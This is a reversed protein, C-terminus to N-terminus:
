LFGTAQMPVLLGACSLVHLVFLTRITSLALVFLLM